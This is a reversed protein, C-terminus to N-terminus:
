AIVVTARIRDAVLAVAGTGTVQLVSSLAGWAWVPRPRPERKADARQRHHVTPV